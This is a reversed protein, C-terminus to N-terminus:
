NLKGSKIFNSTKAIGKVMALGSGTLLVGGTPVGKLAGRLYGSMEGALKPDNELANEYADRWQAESILIQDYTESPNSVVDWLSKATDLPNLLAQALDKVSDIQGRAEAIELGEIFERAKDEDGKFYVKAYMAINQEREVSPSIDDAMNNHEVARKGIEAGQNASSLIEASNGNANVITSGIAGALTSLSVINQKQVETLESIKDTGYLANALLPAALEAGAASVAGTAINGGASASEIAGWVAHAIANTVKDVEGTTKDTTAEKIKQNILPSLATTTLEAGSKGAIASTIVTTVTDVIRKNQGGTGWDRAAEKATRIAQNVKALAEADGSALAQKRHAELRRIEQEAAEQRNTTYTEVASKVNGIAASLQQQEALTAKIDKSQAVQGNAQSIDTNIGLAKATTETPATDKNLIIRGETLTAKTITSDGSQEYMPLGPSIGGKRESGLKTSNETNPKVAKGTENDVWQEQTEKINGSLNVSAARSNSENKIDEFTLSNTKLESAEPNTSAIAGGKLHVSDANVHYGGEEAFLGAQENVQKRYSTGKAANASASLNWNNGFGIEGEISGGKSTTKFREEDQLSEIHFKGGVNANITKGKAQSGILYTDGQSNLTVTEADLHSGHYTKSEGEEKGGSAGVRAYVGVGTQAGVQAAMGAEVGVSQTRGKFRSHSEGANITLENGTLTIHSGEIRKGQEDRSTLDTHTLNINGLRKEGKENLNGDGRATLSITKANIRSGQSLGALGEQSQRSHAVGTGSEVRFLYSGSKPDKNLMKNAADYLSYGQAAVSMANAAKLRDSARDNKVA